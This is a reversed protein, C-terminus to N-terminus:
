NQLRIMKVIELHPITITMKGDSAECPLEEGEPLSVAKVCATPITIHIHDVPVVPPEEQENIVALYDKGEKMWHLTEVYKPADSELSLSGALKKVMRLFVLRSMYPKSLEIPAATWIICGHGLKKEIAAPHDTYIGPPNSHIAAFQDTGTMTYPLTLTALITQDTPDEIEVTTQRMPVTLPALHSFGEFYQMGAETPSMYTFTHETRGTVSVGLLKQLRKCGIPGSILLNGGRLIYREIADMEEARIHSVHSLILVKSPDDAINRSGIVSFPINEARLISAASVPADLYVGPERLHESIKKGTEDPSYKAHSALWISVDHIMKGGVYPEYQSTKQYVEKMTRHYVDPVISGDPNIADVLLFAGNHVLATIVHLFLEDRTKTTTHYTLEPDCRSTHYVFPLRPSVNQYYKNIFTQQLFGGYYDGSAVDSADMLEESVGDSWPMTIRSFQHEVIVNPRIEKVAQTSAKAFDTMWQDRRYAYELFDPNNWDIMRPLENGTEKFYRERCSPCFCIDPWFPMDLFIGDFEYNQCLEQLSERVYERYEPNNPCVIGYRGTRFNSLNRYERFCKGDACIMRWSLHHEYAWNDFIQSYYAVVKIGKEHCKQVMDGFFNYGKLNKHMEGIRTPYYCLGTHPKAKVMATQIGADKLADVYEETNLHSLYVPNDDAIHMDMLNRRYNGDTWM